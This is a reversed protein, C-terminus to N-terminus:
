CLKVQAQCLESGAQKVLKIPITVHIDMNDSFHKNWIFSLAISPYMIHVLLRKPLGQGRPKTRPSNLYGKQPLGLVRQTLKM